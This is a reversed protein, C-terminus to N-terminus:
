YIAQNIRFQSKQGKFKWNKCSNKKGLYNKISKKLVCGLQVNIPTKSFKWGVRKNPGVGKNM